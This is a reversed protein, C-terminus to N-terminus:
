GMATGTDDSNIKSEGFLLATMLVDWLQSDTALVAAETTWSLVGYRTYAHLLAAFHKPRAGERHHKQQMLNGHQMAEYQVRWDASPQM